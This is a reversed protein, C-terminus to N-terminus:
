VSVTYIILRMVVSLTGLFYLNVQGLNELKSQVVDRFLSVLITNNVDLLDLWYCGGLKLYCCFLVFCVMHHWWGHWKGALLIYKSFVGLCLFYCTFSDDSCWLVNAVLFWGLISSSKWISINEIKERSQWPKM